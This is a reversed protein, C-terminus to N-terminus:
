AFAGIEKYYPFYIEGHYEDKCWMKAAEESAVCGMGRYVVGDKNDEDDGVFRLLKWHEGDYFYAKETIGDVFQIKVM